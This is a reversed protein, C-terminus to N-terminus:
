FSCATLELHSLLPPPSRFEDSACTNEAPANAILNCRPKNARDVPWDVSLVYRRGDCGRARARSIRGSGNCMAASCTHTDTCRAGTITTTTTRMTRTTRRRTTTTTTTTPSKRMADPRLTRDGSGDGAACIASAFFAFHTEHM